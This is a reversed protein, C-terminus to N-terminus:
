RAPGAGGMLSALIRHGQAEFEPDGFEHAWVVTSLGSYALYCGLLVLDAEGPIRGYGAYFADRLDPRHEWQQFYMRQVDRVWVDQRALGFDILGVQGCDDVVWNRPQNDGHTPVTTVPGFSALSEVRRRAFAIEAPSLLARGRAIWKELRGALAAAFEDDQAPRGAEHLQRTLIGAREHVAPDTGAATEEARQGPLRTMVLLRRSDAAIVLEPAGSGLAPAWYQLARREQQYHDDDVTKAIWRRGDATTLELVSNSRGPWSLDAFATVPAGLLQECAAVLAEAAAVASGAAADDAVADIGENLRFPAVAAAPGRPLM